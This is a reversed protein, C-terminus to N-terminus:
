TLPDQIEDAETPEAVWASYVPVRHWPGFQTTSDLRQRDTTAAVVAFPHGFQLTAV